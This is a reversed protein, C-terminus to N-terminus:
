HISPSRMLNSFSRAARTLAPKKRRGAITGGSPSNIGMVLRAKATELDLSTHRPSSFTSDSLRPNIPAGLVERAKSDDTTRSSDPDPCLHDLDEWEESEDKDGNIEVVETIVEKAPMELKEDKLTRIARAARELDAADLSQLVRSFLQEQEDEEEVMSLRSKQDDVLNKWEKKFGPSLTSVVESWTMDPDIGVVPNANLVDFHKKVHNMLWGKLLQGFGAQDAFVLSALAVCHEATMAGDEDKIATWAMLKLGVLELQRACKHLRTYTELRKGADLYYNSVESVMDAKTYRDPGKDLYDKVLSFCVGPVQTFHLTMGCGFRYHKSHFFSHLTESRQLSSRKMTFKRVVGGDVEGPCVINIIDDDPYNTFPRSFNINALTCFFMDEITHTTTATDDPGFVSKLLM